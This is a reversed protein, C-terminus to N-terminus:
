RCSAKNILYESGGDRSTKRTVSVEPTDIDLRGSANDFRLTVSALGAPPLRRTGNFIIDALSKTRLSKASLEGLCWRVSESVNTKGCGNPGVVGTIGPELIIETPEAFSKFGSLEISKLYM